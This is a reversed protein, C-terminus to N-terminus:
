RRRTGIQKIKRNIKHIRQYRFKRSLWLVLYINGTFLVVGSLIECGFVTKELKSLRKHVNNPVYTSLVQVLSKQPKQIARKAAKLFKDRVEKRKREKSDEDDISINVLNKQEADNASM